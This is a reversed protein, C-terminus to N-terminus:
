FTRYCDKSRLCDVYDRTVLLGLLNPRSTAQEQFLEFDPNVTLMKM